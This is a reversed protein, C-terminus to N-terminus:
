TEEEKKEKVAQDEEGSRVKLGVSNCWREGGVCRGKADLEQVIERERDLM